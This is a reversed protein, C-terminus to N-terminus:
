APESTPLSAPRSDVFPRQPGCGTSTARVLFDALRDIGFLTGDPSRSEIVGDTYFLVHDGSQLQEVAIEVIPGGLGLPM